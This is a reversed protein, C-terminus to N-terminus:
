YTGDNLHGKYIIISGDKHHDVFMDGDVQCKGLYTLKCTSKRGFKRRELWGQSGQYHTLEIPSSEKEEVPNLMRVNRSM